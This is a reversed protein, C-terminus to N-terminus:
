SCKVIEIYQSLSEDLICYLPGLCKHNNKQKHIKYSTTKNTEHYKHNEVTALHINLLIEFKKKVTTCMSVQKLCMLM